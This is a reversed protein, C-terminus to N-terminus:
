FCCGKLTAEDVHDQCGSLNRPLQGKPAEGGPRFTTCSGPRSSEWAPDDANGLRGAPDSIVVNGPSCRCTAPRNRRPAVASQVAQARKARRTLWAFRAIVM